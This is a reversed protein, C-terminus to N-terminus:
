KAQIARARKQQKFGYFLPRSSLISVKSLLVMSAVVTRIMQATSAATKRAIMMRRRRRLPCSYGASSPEGEFLQAAIGQGPSPSSLLIKGLTGGLSFAMRVTKAEGAGGCPISSLWM